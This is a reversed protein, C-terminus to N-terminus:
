NPTTNGVEALRRLGSTLEPVQEPTLNRFRQQRALYLADLHCAISEMNCEAGAAIADLVECLSNAIFTMLESGMTTGADRVQRSQM